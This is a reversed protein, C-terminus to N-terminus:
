EVLGRVMGMAMGGVVDVAWVEGREVGAILEMMVLEGTQGLENRSLAVVKKGVFKGSGSKVGFNGAPSVREQRPCSMDHDVGGAGPGPSQDGHNKHLPM